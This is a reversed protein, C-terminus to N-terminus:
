AEFVVIHSRCSDHRLSRVAVYEPSTWFTDFAKRSPWKQVVHLAAPRDGEIVDAGGLSMAVVTAGYSDLLPQVAESYRRLLGPDRVELDAVMYVPKDNSNM